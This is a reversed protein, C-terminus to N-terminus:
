AAIRYVVREFKEALDEETGCSIRVLGPKIGVKDMDEPNYESHTTERPMCFYTGVAGLSVAGLGVGEQIMADIFARGQEATDFTVTLMGSMVSSPMDTNRNEKYYKMDEAANAKLGKGRAIERLKRANQAAGYVRQVLDLMNQIFEKAVRPAMVGGEVMREGDDFDLFQDMLESKGSVSGGLDESHGGLYKTMSHIVMDVGKEAPKVDLPTFTKDCVTMAGIRQAEEVVRDIPVSMLTPNNCAEFYVMKTDEPLGDELFKSIPMYVFNKGETKRLREFLSHTGGYVAGIVVIKDGDVYEESEGRSAPKTFQSITAKIAALGSAFVRSQETGELESLVEECLELMPNTLRSYVWVKQFLAKLDDDTIGVETIETKYKTQAAQILPVVDAEPVAELEFKFAQRLLEATSFAQTTHQEELIKALVINKRVLAILKTVTPDQMLYDLSGEDVGEHAEDGEVTAAPEDGTGEGRVEFAVTM